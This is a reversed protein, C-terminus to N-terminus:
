DINRLYSKTQPHCLLVEYQDKNIGHKQMICLDDLSQNGVDELFLDWNVEKYISRLNSLKEQALQYEEYDVYRIFEYEWCPSGSHKNYFLSNPNSKLYFRDLDDLREVVDVELTEINIVKHGPKVERVRNMIAILMEYLEQELEGV